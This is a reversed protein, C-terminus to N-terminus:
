SWSPIWLFSEVHLNSVGLMFPTLQNRTGGSLQREIPLNPIPPLLSQSSQPVSQSSPLSDAEQSEMQVEDEGEDLIVYVNYFDQLLDLLGLRRSEWLVLDDVARTTSQENGKSDWRSVNYPLATAWHYLTPSRLSLDPTRFRGVGHQTRSCSM